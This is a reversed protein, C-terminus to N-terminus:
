DSCAVKFEGLLTPYNALGEILSMAQFWTVAMDGFNSNLTVHNDHNVHKGKRKAKLILLLTVELGPPPNAGKGGSM